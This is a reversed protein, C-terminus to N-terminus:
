GIRLNVLVKTDVTLHHSETASRVLFEIRMIRTMYEPIDEELHVIVKSFKM